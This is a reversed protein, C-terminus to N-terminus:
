PLFILGLTALAFRTIPDGTFVHHYDGGLEVAFHSGIVYRIGAGANLGYEKSGDETFYIGTGVNLFLWSNFRLKGNISVNSWREYTKNEHKANLHHYGYLLMVSLPKFIRLEVDGIISFKKNNLEEFNLDQFPLGVHFSLNWPRSKRAKGIGLAKADYVMLKNYDYEPALWFSNCAEPNPLKNEDALLAVTAIADIDGKIGDGVGDLALTLTYGGFDGLTPDFPAGSVPLLASATFPIGETDSEFYFDLIASPLLKVPEGVIEGPPYIIDYPNQREDVYRAFGLGSRNEMGEVDFGIGVIAACDPDFPPKINEPDPVPPLMSTWEFKDFSIRNFKGTWGVVTKGYIAMAVEPHIALVDTYGIYDLAHLDDKKIINSNATPTMLLHLNGRWHSSQCRFNDVSCEYDTMPTGTLSTIGQSMSRNKLVTDYYEAPGPILRRTETSINHSAGTEKFRWLDLTTPYNYGQSFDALLGAHSIFGLIHGIEHAVTPISITEAQDFKIVGDPYVGNKAPPQEYFPVVSLVKSHPPMLGLAKANASMIILFESQEITTTNTLKYRVEVPVSNQPLAKMVKAEEEAWSWYYGAGAILAKRVKDYAYKVRAPKAGIPFGTKDKLNKVTEVNIRITIEDHLEQKWMKAAQEFKTKQTSKVTGSYNFQIDLGCATTIMILTYLLILLFYIKM